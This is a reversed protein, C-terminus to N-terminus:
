RKVNIAQYKPYISVIYDYYNSPLISLSDVGKWVRMQKNITDIIRTTRARAMRMEALKQASFCSRSSGMLRYRKQDSSFLVALKEYFNNADNITVNSFLFKPNASNPKSQSQAHLGLTPSKRLISTRQITLNRWWELGIQEEQKMAKALRECKSLGFVAHANSTVGISVLILVISALILHFKIQPFM